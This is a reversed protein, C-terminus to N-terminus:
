TVVIRALAYAVVAAIWLASRLRMGAQLGYVPALPCVILAAPGHWWPRRLSLGVAISVHATVLTAFPVVLLALKVLDM